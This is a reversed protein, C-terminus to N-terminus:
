LYNNTFTTSGKATVAIKFCSGDYVSLPRYYVVRSLSCPEKM